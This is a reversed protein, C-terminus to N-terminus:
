LRKRQFIVNLDIELGKFVPSKIITEDDKDFLTVIAKTSYMGNELVYQEILKLKPDVIWYEKVGAKEFLRLKTTRDRVRTKKSAVEAILDPTGKYEDEDENTEGCIITIDPRVYDEPNEIDLYVNLDSTYVECEKSNSDFYINFKNIIRSIIKAHFFSGESMYYIKGNIIEKIENTRDDHVRDKYNRLESM